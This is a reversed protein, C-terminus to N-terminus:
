KLLEPNEHITGIKTLTRGVHGGFHWSANINRMRFAGFWPTIDFVVFYREGEPNELIDGEYIDVGESDQLGTFQMVIWDDESFLDCLMGTRSDATPEMFYMEKMSPKWARFKIVRDM